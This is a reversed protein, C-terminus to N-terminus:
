RLLVLPDEGEFLTPNTVMLMGIFGGFMCLVESFPMAEGLILWAQLSTVFTSAMMISVALSIPLLQIAAFSMVISLYAFCSRWFLLKKVEWTYNKFAQVEVGKM